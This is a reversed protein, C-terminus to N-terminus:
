RDSSGGTGMRVGPASGPQAGPRTQGAGARARQREGDHLAAQYKARTVALTSGRWAALMVLAPREGLRDYLRSLRYVENVSTGIEPKFFLLIRQFAPSPMDLARAAVALAEGGADDVIQAAVRSSLILSDVLEFAFNEVDGAIAAMELIQTARRARVTPIRPAAKLPSQALNHLILARESAGARFFMDHIEAAEKPQMAMNTAMRQEAETPVRSPGSPPTPIERALPVRRGEQTAVLGLKQLVPVPTQAYVALRAKVAARTADDVQDILRTALEVFQRQEDDSHTSTQVYLDTLVRLLTPRVDVGERRSLTMLGDFGPFLSKTM